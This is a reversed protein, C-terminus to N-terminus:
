CDLLAAIMGAKDAGDIRAVGEVIGNLHYLATTEFLATGSSQGNERTMQRYYIGKLDTEELVKEAYALASFLVLTYSKTGFTMCAYYCANPEEAAIMRRFLGLLLDKDQSEAVAIEELQLEPLHLAELEAQLLAFNPNPCGRDQRIAVVKVSDGPQVTDAIIPVIPFAAQPDTEPRAFAFNAPQNSQPTLLFNSELPVATFYIRRM